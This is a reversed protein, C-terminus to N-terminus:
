SFKVKSMDVDSIVINVIGTPIQNAKLTVIEANLATITDEYTKVAATLQTILEQATM